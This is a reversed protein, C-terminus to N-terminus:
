PRGPTTNSGCDFPARAKTSNARSITARISVRRQSSSMRAGATSGGSAASPPRPDARGLSLGRDARMGAHQQAAVDLQEGAPLDRQLVIQYADVVHERTRRLAATAQCRQQAAVHQALCALLARLGGTQLDVGVVRRPACGGDVARSERGRRRGSGRARGRRPTIACGM